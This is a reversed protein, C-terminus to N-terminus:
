GRRSRRWHPPGARQAAQYVEDSLGGITFSLAALIMLWGAPNSPVRAAVLSGTTAFVVIFLLGAIDGYHVTSHHWVTMVVVTAVNFLWLTGAAATTARRM